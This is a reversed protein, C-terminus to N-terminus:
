HNDLIKFLQMRNDIKLIDYIAKLHYKVTNESIFLETAIQKNSKGERLLNIVEIQRDKLNYKSFHNKSNSSQSLLVLEDHIRDYEKELLYHKARKTRYFKYSIVALFILLIIIVGMFIMWLRNRKIEFEKQKLNLDKEFIKIKGKNEEINYVTNLSDYKEFAFFANKYDKRMAFQNRYVEYLYMQYKILNYKKANFLGLKFSKKANSSDNMAGFLLIKKGYVIPLDRNNYKELILQALDLKYIADKYEKKLYSLYGDQMILYAKRNNDLYEYNHKRLENMLIGSKEYEQLDFLIFSKEANIEAIVVNKKNTKIGIKLALDLCRMASKYDFLRKYTFSKQIYAGYLNYNNNKNEKIFTDIIKVSETYKLEDNLKLVNAELQTINITQAHSITIVCNFFVSLVSLKILKM